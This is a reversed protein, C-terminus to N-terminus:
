YIDHATNYVNFKGTPTVLWDGTIRRTEQLTEDNYIIIEGQRNWLSVWVETGARNYEFHVVQGRDAATWCSELEGKAKSYVCIKRAGEPDNNMPMDMWVWQSNPHTKLFLSGTGPLQVNRVVQWAHEPHNVPDAGYVALLGQGIHTTANVWGYEPDEWNAGRGPHPKIGTEFTTVLEKEQVDVVAMKDRMNAAVIFYRGTHDWGGDHLFREAPIRSVMPFGPQSYDVIAVHGSEKLTVVWVPDDHSAIVAAVRVEELPEDTDYTNGEVSTISLPELTLGDFVIYQPPWYCGEILYRDEFGRYKSAEVSRADSCGQVQAVLSPTETWLDILTVRGDRGIAYFYRGTSSSRLIHVAFGTEVINILEYTDGDIIAVQGADRLIVGVYNEWDRSTMPRTPRDAVPTLLNWSERIVELPRQPPAPPPLQVYRAMIDMEEESLVGSRGWSPMGGPLGNTLTLRITSTGLETTRAPQINPGTAGARLTGHCGACRDFYIGRGREFDADSLEVPGEEEAALTTPAHESAWAVYDLVRGRQEDSLVNPSMPVNNWEALLQQAIPDTQIMGLPDAIWRELWERDRRESVGMLDPGIGPGEGITHCTLCNQEFLAQGEAIEPPPRDGSCGVVLAAITAAVTLNVLPNRTMTPASRPTSMPSIGEIGTNALFGDAVIFQM